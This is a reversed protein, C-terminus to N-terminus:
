LTTAKFGVVETPVLFSFTLILNDNKMSAYHYFVQRMKGLNLTQIRGDFSPVTLSIQSL